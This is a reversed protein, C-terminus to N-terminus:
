VVFFELDEPDARAGRGLEEEVEEADVVDERNIRPLHAKRRGGERGGGEEIM